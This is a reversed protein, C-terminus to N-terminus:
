RCWRPVGSCFCAMISKVVIVRMIGILPRQSASARRRSVLRFSGDSRFSFGDKARPVRGDSAIALCGAIAQCQFDAGALVEPQWTPVRFLSTLTQSAMLHQPDGAKRLIRLM